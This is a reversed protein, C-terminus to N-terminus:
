SIKIQFNFNLSPNFKNIFYSDLSDMHFIDYQDSDSRGVGAFVDDIDFRNM